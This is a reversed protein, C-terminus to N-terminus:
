FTKLRHWPPLTFTVSLRWCRSSAGIFAAAEARGADRRACSTFFFPSGRSIVTCNDRLFRAKCICTVGTFAPARANRGREFSTPRSEACRYFSTNLREASALVVDRFHELPHLIREVKSFLESTTLWSLKAPATFNKLFQDVACEGTATIDPFLKSLLQQQFKLAETVDQNARNRALIILIM